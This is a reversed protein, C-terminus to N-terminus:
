ALRVKARKRLTEADLNAIEDILAPIFSGPGRVDPREAALESAINMTLLSHFHTSPHMFLSLLATQSSFFILSPIQYEM